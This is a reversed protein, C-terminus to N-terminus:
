SEQIKQKIIIIFLVTIYTIGVCAFFGFFFWMFNFPKYTKIMIFSFSFMSIWTSTCYICQLGKLFKHLFPIKYDWSKTKYYVEDIQVDRYMVNRIREKDMDVYQSKEFLWKGLSSFIMYPQLTMVWFGGIM